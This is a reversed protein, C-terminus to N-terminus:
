LGRRCVADDICLMDYVFCWAIHKECNFSYCVSLHTTWFINEFLIFSFPLCVMHYWGSYFVLCFYWWVHLYLHCHCHDEITIEIEHYRRYSAVPLQSENTRCEDICYNALGANSGRKKEKTSWTTNGQKRLNFGIGIWYMDWIMVFILILFLLVM